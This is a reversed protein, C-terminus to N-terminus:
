ASKGKGHPEEKPLTEKPPPPPTYDSVSEVKLMGGANQLREMLQEDCIVTDSKGSVLTHDGITLTKNEGVPATYTVTAKKQGM